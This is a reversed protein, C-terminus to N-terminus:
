QLLQTRSPLRSPRTEQQINQFGSVSKFRRLPCLESLPNHSMKCPPAPPPRVAAASARAAPSARSAPPPPGALTRPRRSGGGPRGASQTGGAPGQDRLRLAPQPRPAAAAPAPAASGSGPPSPPPLAAAAPAPAPAAPPTASARAWPRRHARVRGCCAKHPCLRSLCGRAGSFQGCSGHTSRMFRAAIVQLLVTNTSRRHRCLAGCLCRLTHSSPWRRSRKLMGRPRAAAGRGFLRRVPGATRAPAPAPSAPSPASFMALMACASPMIFAGPPSGCRRCASRVARSWAAAAAGGAGPRAPWRLAGM